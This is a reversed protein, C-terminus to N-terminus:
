CLYSDEEIILPEEQQEINQVQKSQSQKSNKRKLRYSLEIYTYFYIFSKRNVIVEYDQVDKINFLILLEQNSKLKQHEAKRIKRLYIVKKNKAINNLISWKPMFYSNIGLEDLIIQQRWQWILLFMTLISLILSLLALALVYISPERYHVQLNPFISVFNNLLNIDSLKSEIIYNVVKIYFDQIISSINYFDLTPNQIWIFTYLLNSFYFFFITLLLLRFRVKYLTGYNNSILNISERRIRNQSEILEM